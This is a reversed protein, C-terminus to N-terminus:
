ALSHAPAGKGTELYAKLSELYHAWNFNIDAFSGDTRAWDRHAFHVITGQEAPELQWTVRTGVWEPAAPEEVSWEVTTPSELRDIRMLIVFQGGMFRFQAQTGVEASASVDDTWWSELGAEETIAAFVKDLPASVSFQLLIDAM